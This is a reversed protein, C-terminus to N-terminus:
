ARILRTVAVVQGKEDRVCGDKPGTAPYYTDKRDGVRGAFLASVIYVVGEKPEPLGVPEGWQTPGCLTVGDPWEACGCVLSDAYPVTAIRAVTGSPAVSHRTGEASQLVIVHPTLNVFM